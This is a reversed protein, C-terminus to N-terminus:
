INTFGVLHAAVEEYTKSEGEKTQFSKMSAKGRVFIEHGKELHQSCQRALEGWAVVRKWTPPQEKGNNIAVSFDCIYGGEQTRRLEPHRGLRGFFVEYQKSM